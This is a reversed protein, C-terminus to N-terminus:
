DFKDFHLHLSSLDNAYRYIVVTFRSPLDLVRANQKRGELYRIKGDFLPPAGLHDDRNQVNRPLEEPGVGGAVGAYSDIQGPPPTVPINEGM